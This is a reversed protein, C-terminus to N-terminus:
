HRHFRLSFCWATFGVLFLQTKVLKIEREERKHWKEKKFAMVLTAKTLIRQRTVMVIYVTVDLKINKKLL